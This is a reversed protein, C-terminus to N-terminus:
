NSYQLDAYEKVKSKCAAPSDGLKLQAYRDMVEEFSCSFRQEFDAILDESVADRSIVQPMLTGADFNRKCIRAFLIWVDRETFGVDMGLEVGGGRNRIGEGKERKGKEEKRKRERQFAGRCGDSDFRSKLSKAVYVQGCYECTNIYRKNSM